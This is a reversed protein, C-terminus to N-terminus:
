SGLAVGSSERGEPTHIVVGMEGEGLTLFEASTESLAQAETGNGRKKSTGRRGEASFNTAIDSQRTVTGARCLPACLFSGSQGPPQPEGYEPRLDPLNDLVLKPELPGRLLNRRPQLLRVIIGGHVDTMLGDVGSEVNEGTPSQTLFQQGVEPFVVTFASLTSLEQVVASSLNGIQHADM